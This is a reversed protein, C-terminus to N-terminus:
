RGDHHPKAVNNLLVVTQDGEIIFDTPFELKSGVQLEPMSKNLAEQVFTRLETPQLGVPALVDVVKSSRFCVLVKVNQM